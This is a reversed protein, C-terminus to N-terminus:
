EVESGQTFVQQTKITEPVKLLSKMSLCEKM